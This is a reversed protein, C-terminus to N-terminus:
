QGTSTDEAEEEPERVVGYTEDLWRKLDILRCRDSCFPMAPSQESEFTRECILCRLPPM